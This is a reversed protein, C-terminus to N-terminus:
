TPKSRWAARATMVASAQRGKATVSTRSLWLPVSAGTKTIVRVNQLLDMNERANNLLRM